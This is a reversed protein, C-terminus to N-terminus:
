CIRSTVVISRFVGYYLGHAVITGFTAALETANAGPILPGDVITIGSSTVYATHFLEYRPM